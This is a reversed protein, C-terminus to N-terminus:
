ILSARITKSLTSRPPLTMCSGAGAGAGAATTLILSAPRHAMSWFNALWVDAHDMVARPLDPASM